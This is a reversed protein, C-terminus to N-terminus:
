VTVGTHRYVTVASTEIDDPTLTVLASRTEPLPAHGSPARFCISLANKADVTGEVFFCAYIHNAPEQDL